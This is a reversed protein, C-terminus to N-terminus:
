SVALLIPLRVRNIGVRAIHSVMCVHMRGSLYVCNGLLQRRGKKDNNTENSVDSKRPIQVMATKEKYPFYTM